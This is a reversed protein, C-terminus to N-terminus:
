WGSQTYKEASCGSATSVAYAASTIYEQRRLNTCDTDARGSKLM